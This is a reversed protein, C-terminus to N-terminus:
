PKVAFYGPRTSVRLEGYRPDRATVEIHHYKGDEAGPFGLNYQRRIERAIEECIKTTDAVANPFFARGGTDNALQTLAAINRDRDSEDFAGITYLVIGAKEVVALAGALTAHSSNDAGDTIVLLVRRPYAAREFRSQAFILADYLAPTGGLEFRSVATELESTKGTFPTDAPLGLRTHDSFHVVFMQDLPNSGRAFALAAAIVVPQKTAMSASNDVVIGATVPADEGNFATLPQPVGDVFLRFASMALGGVPRGKSDTVTVPLQVLNVNLRISVQPSGPPPQQGALFYALVPILTSIRIPGIKM